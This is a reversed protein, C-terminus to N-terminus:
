LVLSKEESRNEIDSPTSPIDIVNVIFTKNVVNEFEDIFTLSYEYRGVESTDIEIKEKLYGYYGRIYKYIDIEANKHVIINDELLEDNLQKILKEKMKKYEFSYDGLITEFLSNKINKFFVSNVDVSGVREQENLPTVCRLDKVKAVSDNSLFNFESTKMLYFESNIPNSLSPHYAKAHISENYTTIPIVYLYKKTKAVIIGMHRYSISPLPNLGFSYFFVDGINRNKVFQVDRKRSNFWSLLSNMINNKEKENTERTFNGEIDSTIENYFLSSFKYFLKPYNDKWKNLAM